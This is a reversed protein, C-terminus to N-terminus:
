RPRYGRVASRPKRRAPRHHAPARRRRRRHDVTLYLLLLVIGRTGPSLQEIGVGDYRLDYSVSIHDASYLWQAVRQGWQLFKERESKEMPAHEALKEAFAERFAALANAAEEATGERWPKLLRKEAESLLTGKGSKRLDLLAEGDAAWKAADVSRRVYFSLKGLSGSEAELREALPQYLSQLETQEAIIAGLLLKYANTRQSQLEKIKSDAAKAREIQQDLKRLETEERSIRESLDTLKRANAADVGVLTNLRRMERELIRLEVDILLIKAPLHTKSVDEPVASAMITLPEPAGEEKAIAQKAEKLKQALLADTEGVFTLGFRKWEDSNLGADAYQDKLEALLGPITRARYEGVEATLGRIAQERQKLDGVQERKSEVASRVQNLAAADAAKGKNLLADREKKNKEISSNKETRQQQLKLLGAKRTREGAIEDAIRSLEDDSRDREVRASSLKTELLDRFSSTGMRDSVGHANFIVREIEALLSDDLGEASCLQDVFQQSLYQVQPENFEEEFEVHALEASSTDGNEWVLEASASQLHEKARRLFSRDNLHPSAAYGAAAILDALATKGSGRAGIIAVLGPNLPVSGQPLWAANSVTIKSIVNGPLAGSPPLEGVIARNEPEICAQRLSEFTPDGKIWTYRNLAPAGVKAQAHADSGHMCPKVGGLRAELDERPLAGRGLWFERQKEQSAFIIRAFREIEERTAKFSDDAALGATGDNSSGSVAILCNRQVWTDEAWREQIEGFSVKFQNAGIELAKHDETVSADFAKGLRILGARTCEYPRGLYSFTLRSLFREIEGIHQPDEPSFLLHLNIGIKKETQIDLRLEINPFVIGVSPLRGADKFGLMKRYDDLNWYDTIGLACIPPDAHEIRSLFEEWPDPGTFQNAMITGPAHIHPDWRRWSSGPSVIPNENPKM